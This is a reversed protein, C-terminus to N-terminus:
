FGFITDLMTKIGDVSESVVPPENDDDDAKLVLGHFFKNKM